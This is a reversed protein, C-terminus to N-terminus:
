LDSTPPSGHPDDGPTCAAVGRGLVCPGPFILVVREGGVGRRDGLLFPVGRRPFIRSRGRRHLPRLWHKAHQWWGDALQQVLLEKFVYQRLPELQPYAAFAAGASACYELYREDLSRGATM